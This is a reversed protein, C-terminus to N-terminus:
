SEVHLHCWTGLIGFGSIKPCQFYGDLSDVSKHVGLMNQEDNTVLKVLPGHYPKPCKFILIVEYETDFSGVIGSMEEKM